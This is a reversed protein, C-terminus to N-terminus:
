WRLTSIGGGGGVHPQQRSAWRPTLTKIETIHGLGRASM